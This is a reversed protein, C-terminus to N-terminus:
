REQLTEGKAAEAKELEEVYKQQRVEEDEMLVAIMQKLLSDPTIPQSEDMRKRAELNQRLEYLSLTHANKLTAPRVGEPLNSPSGSGSVDPKSMKSPPNGNRRLETEHFQVNLITSYSLSAFGRLLKPSAERHVETCWSTAPTAPASSPTAPPTAAALITGASTPGVTTSTAGSTSRSPPAARGLGLLTGGMLAAVVIAIEEIEIVVLQEHIRARVDGAHEQQGATEITVQRIRDVVPLRWGRAIGAHMMRGGAPVPLNATATTAAAAASVVADRRYEAVRADCFVIAHCGPAKLVAVAVTDIQHM